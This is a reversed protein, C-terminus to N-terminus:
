DCVGAPSLHPHRRVRGFPWWAEPCSFVGQGVDRVMGSFPTATMPSGDPTFKDWARGMFELGYPPDTVIADVSDPKLGPLVDRCDSQYVRARARSLRRVYQTMAAM